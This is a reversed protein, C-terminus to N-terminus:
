VRLGHAFLHDNNDSQRIKMRETEVQVIYGFNMVIMAILSWIILKGIFTHNCMIIWLFKTLEEEDLRCKFWQFNHSKVGIKEGDTEQKLYWIWPKNKAM